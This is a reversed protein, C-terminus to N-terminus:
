GVWYTRPGVRRRPLRSAWRPAVPSGRIVTTDAALDHWTRRQRQFVAWVYGLGFAAASVVSVLIRLIVQGVTAQDGASEALSLGLFAMGPTSQMATLFLAQYALVILVGAVPYFWLTENPLGTGLRPVPRRHRLRRRLGGHM